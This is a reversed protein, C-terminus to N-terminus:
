LEEKKILKFQEPVKKEPIYQVQLNMKDLILRVIDETYINKGEGDIMGRSWQRKLYENTFPPCIEYVSNRELNEYFTYLTTIDTKLEGM